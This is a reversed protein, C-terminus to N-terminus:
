KGRGKQQIFAIVDDLDRETPLTKAMMAMQRGTVDQPDTGRVGDRFHAFQRKIYTADLGALRPSKLAVNGEAANGHCAGCKGNYLNNGNHLDGRAPTASVTKPLSAVYSALKAVAADDGIAKALVRMQAGQTDSKHAGRRDSRFNLLQRTLYSADQGAIAPANLTPNGEGKNGHCSACLAFQKAGDAALSAASCMLLAVVGLLRSQSLPM